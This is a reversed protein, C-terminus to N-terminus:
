DYPLHGLMGSRKPQYRVKKFRRDNSAIRRITQISGETYHFNRDLYGHFPVSNRWYSRSRSRDVDHTLDPAPMASIMKRAPGGHRDQDAILVSFDKGGSRFSSQGIRGLRNSPNGMVIPVGFWSEFTVGIARTRATNLDFQGDSAFLCNLRNIDTIYPAILPRGDVGGQKIIARNKIITSRYYPYYAANDSAYTFVALGYQHMDSACTVLRANYRARHLAPMLMAILIAIIMVVTLLEILTFHSKRIAVQM